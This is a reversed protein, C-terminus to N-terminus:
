EAGRSGTASDGAGSKLLLILKHIPRDYESDGIRVRVSRVLGDAGTYADVVRGLPWRNRPADDEVVVVVDDREINPEPHHWKRREQLSPLFERRWRTWFQNALYQVRRWRQRGYVDPRCFKGPPPLVVTSKLTLLQSPTIPEVVSADNMSICSLPRSNVVAEAETMLTRLLEDDLQQGVDQLLSSLASRVTRIQREWAGGMHSAKPTIPNFQVWDCSDKLLTRRITDHDM